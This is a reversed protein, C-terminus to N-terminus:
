AVYKGKNANSILDLLKGGVLTGRRGHERLEVAESRGDIIHTAKVLGLHM